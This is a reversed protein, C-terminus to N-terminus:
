HGSAQQLLQVARAIVSDHGAELDRPTASVTSDPLVGVGDMKEAHAGLVRLETIELGGGNGLGFFEAEAIQGASRKGVISGLALDKVAGAVLEASSASGGDILVALPLRLLPVSDVTRDPARHGEGDVTYALVHKHVFASLIRVAQDKDGGPNNRLDLIVGSVPAAREARAIASFVKTAADATFNYLRIYIAGTSLMRSTIVPTRLTRVALNVTVTAGTAPRKVTLSLVANQRPILLDALAASPQGGSIPPAGNVDAIVDGAKLGASAAATGTFVDTIYLPETLVTGSTPSLVLGLSPAPGDTLQELEQRMYQSPLYGTHGDNLSNAMGFLAAEALAGALQDAGQLQQLFGSYWQNFATWDRTRNGILPLPISRALFATQGPLNNVITSFAGHLLTRDDLATGSVYHDLLCQYAERVTAISATAQGPIDGPGNVVRCAAPPILPLGHAQPTSALPLLLGALLALPVLRLWRHLVPM